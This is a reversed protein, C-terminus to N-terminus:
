RASYGSGWGCIRPGRPNRMMQASLPKVSEMGKMKPRFFDRRTVSSARRILLNRYIRIIDGYLAAHNVPNHHSVSMHVTHRMM